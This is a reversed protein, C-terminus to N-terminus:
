PREHLMWEKDYLLGRAYDRLSIGQLQITCPALFVHEVALDFAEEMNDPLRSTRINLMTGYHCVLEAGYKENWKKLISIVKSTGIAGAGYWHIYALVEWSFQTPLLVLAQPRDKPRFWDWYNEDRQREEVPPGNKELEWKLLWRQFATYGRIEGSQICKKVEQSLFTRDAENEINQLEQAVIGELDDLFQEEFARNEEEVNVTIERSLTLIDHPYIEGFGYESEEKFFFRSFTGDKMMTNKWSDEGQGWSIYQVPWMGIEAIQYRVIQWLANGEGGLIEIAFAPETVQEINLQIVQNQDFGFNKLLGSIKAEEM